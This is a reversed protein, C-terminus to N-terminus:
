ASETLFLLGPKGPGYIRVQDEEEPKSSTMWRGFHSTLPYRHLVAATTFGEEASLQDRREPLPYNYLWTTGREQWIAWRGM